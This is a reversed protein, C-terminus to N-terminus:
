NDNDTKTKTFSIKPNYNDDPIISYNKAIISPTLNIFVQYDVIKPNVYETPEDELQIRSAWDIIIKRNEKPTDIPITVKGNIILDKTTIPAFIFDHHISKNKNSIISRRLKSINEKGYVVDNSIKMRANDTFMEAYEEHTINSDDSLKYFNIAFNKLNNFKKDEINM